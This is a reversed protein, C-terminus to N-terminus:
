CKSEYKFVTEFVAFSLNNLHRANLEPIGKYIDVLQAHATYESSELLVILVCWKFHTRLM